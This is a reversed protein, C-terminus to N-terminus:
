RTTESSLKVSLSANAGPTLTIQNEAVNGSEVCVMRQYEKTGFDPMAKAKAIWPNWVVTSASGIKEVRVVRRLAADHIDVAHSTNIYTRDVEGAFRIAAPTETKRRHGDLSDLYDMGQLGTVQIASIDGVAFYTHLCNEFAFARASGNRVILEASLTTSVTISYEVAIEGDGLEPCPPLLLRAIIIGNDTTTIEKLTWSRNRVFGHQGPRNAPKGFWPFLIPIGGRIPVGPEFRSQDSLFLLPPEDHKQFHTVHAGHFYLEATSWPTTIQLKPLGGAGNCFVVRTM